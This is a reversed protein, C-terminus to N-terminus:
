CSTNRWCGPHQCSNEDMSRYKALSNVLPINAITLAGNDASPLVAHSTMLEAKRLQLCSVQWKNINTVETIKLSKAGICRHCFRTMNIGGWERGVNWSNDAAKGSLSITQETTKEIKKISFVIIEGFRQMRLREWSYPAQRELAQSFRWCRM